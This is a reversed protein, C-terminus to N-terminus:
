LKRVPHTSGRCLAAPSTVEYLGWGLYSSGKKAFCWPIIMLRAMTYTDGRKEGLLTGSDLTALIHHIGAGKLFQHFIPCEFRGLPM